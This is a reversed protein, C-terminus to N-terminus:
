VDSYTDSSTVQTAIFGGDVTPVAGGIGALSTSPATIPVHRLTNGNRDVDLVSCLSNGGAYGDTHTVTLQYGAGNQTINSVWNARPMDLRKSWIIAGSSKNMKVLFGDYYSAGQTFGAVVLTDAHELIGGLNDSIGSGGFKKAWSVTGTSTLKLVEIDCVGGAFNYIGTLAYGGESTQIIDYGAEGNTTSQHFVKSWDVTGDRKIKVVFVEGTAQTYSRTTGIAIYGSDSTQKIKRFDDNQTGGYTKLWQINGLNDTKVVYADTGGKGFSTTTGSNALFTQEATSM